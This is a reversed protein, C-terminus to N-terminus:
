VRENHSKRFKWETRDTLFLHFFTNRAVCGVFLQCIRIYRVRNSSKESPSKHLLKKRINRRIYLYIHRWEDHAVLLVLKNLENLIHQATEKELFSVNIGRSVGFRMKWRRKGPTMIWILLIYVLVFKPYKVKLLRRRRRHRRCSLSRWRRRQIM